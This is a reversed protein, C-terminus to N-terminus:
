SMSPFAIEPVFRFAVSRFDARNVDLPAIGPSQDPRQFQGLARVESISFQFWKSFDVGTPDGASYGLRRDKHHANWVELRDAALNINDGVAGETRLSPDAYEKIFWKEAEDNSPLPSFRVFEKEIIFHAEAPLPGDVTADWNRSHNIPSSARQNVESLRRRILPVDPSM